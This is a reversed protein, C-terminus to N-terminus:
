AYQLVLDRGGQRSPASLCACGHCSQLVVAVLSLETSAASAAEFGIGALNRRLEQAAAAYAGHQAGSPVADALFTKAFEKACTWPLDQFLTIRVRDLKQFLPKQNSVQSFSMREKLQVADDEAEPTSGGAYMRICACGAVLVDRVCFVCESTTKSM